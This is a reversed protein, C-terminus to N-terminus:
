QSPVGEAGGLPLVRGLTMKQLRRLSGVENELFM